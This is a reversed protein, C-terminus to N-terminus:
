IVRKQEALRRFIEFLKRGEKKEDMDELNYGIREMKGIKGLTEGLEEWRRLYYGKEGLRSRNFDSEFCIVPLDAAMLNALKGSAETSGSKPDVGADALSLYAPLSFYKVRGVFIVSNKMDNEEVYKRYKEEDAGFGGVLLKWDKKWLEAKEETASVGSEEFGLKKVNKFAELLDGVGKNDSLGGIYVLLKGEGKWKKISEIRKKEEGTLEPIEKFLDLDIGDRVINIRNKNKYLEEMRPKVNESSLVLWDCRNIFRKSLWVFIRRAIFNRRNYNRFEEDLDAQLDTVIPINRFAMRKAIYGVGLGEYMHGYIVNPRFKRIARRCLFILKIDLWFKGWSFGPAIRKYWGVKKIREIDFRGVDEGSFYSCIKVKAGFKELYKAKNYIRMHCGRDSFFPTAAITLVKLNNELYYNDRVGPIEEKSFVFKKRMFFNWNLVLIIAIGKAIMVYLNLKDVLLWLIIETWILGGLGILAFLPFERKIEGSSKFVLVINLSYNVVIGIFFSFAAAILYNIDFIHTLIFLLVVDTITAFGGCILYRFFQLVSKNIKRGLLKEIFEDILEKM